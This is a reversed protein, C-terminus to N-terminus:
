QQWGSLGRRGSRVWLRRRGAGNRRCPVRGCRFRGRRGKRRFLLDGQIGPRVGNKHQSTRASALRADEYASQPTQEGLPCSRFVQQCQRKGATGSRFHSITKRSIRRLGRKGATISQVAVGPAQEVLRKRLARQKEVVGRAAKKGGRIGRKGGLFAATEPIDYLEFPFLAPM